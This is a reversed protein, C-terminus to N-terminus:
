DPPESANLQTRAVRMENAARVAACADNVTSKPAGFVAMLEDGVFKDVIGGHRRVIETMATMHRNLLDLVDHPKMGETMKTFGRIDCFLVTVSRLEGGLDIKGSLLEEAVEPSVVKDLVGRYKEKLQLGEAMENFAEGLRGIEDATRPKVR